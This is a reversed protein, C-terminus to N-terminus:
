KQLEKWRWRTYMVGSALLVLGTIVAIVQQTFDNTGLIAYAILAIGFGALGIGDWLTQWRVAGDLNQKLSM